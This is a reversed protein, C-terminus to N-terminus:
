EGAVTDGRTFVGWFFCNKKQSVAEAQYVSHGKRKEWRQLNLYVVVFGVDQCIKLLQSLDQVPLLAILQLVQLLLFFVNQFTKCLRFRLHHLLGLVHSLEDWIQLMPQLPWHHLQQLYFTSLLRLMSILSFHLSNGKRHQQARELVLLTGQLVAKRFWNSFNYSYNFTSTVLSLGM